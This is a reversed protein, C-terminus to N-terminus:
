TSEICRLCSSFITNYIVNQNTSVLCNSWGIYHIKLLREHGEGDLATVRVPFWEGRWEVQLTDGVAVGILGEDADDAEEEGDEEEADEEDEEGEEGKSAAEVEAAEVEAAMAKLVAVSPRLAEWSVAMAEEDEAWRGLQAGLGLDMECVYVAM